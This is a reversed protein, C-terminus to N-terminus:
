TIVTECFIGSELRKEWFIKGTEPNLAIIKGSTTAIFITGYELVPASYMIEGVQRKWIIRPKKIDIVFLIGKSDIIYFRNKFIPGKNFFSEGVKMKWNLKGKESISFLYGNETGFYLHKKYFVPTSWIAIETDYEWLGPIKRHRREIPIYEEFERLVAGDM